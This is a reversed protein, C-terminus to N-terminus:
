LKYSESSPCVRGKDSYSKRFNNKGSGNCNHKCQRTRCYIISSDYNWKVFQYDADETFALTIKQGISYDKTGALYVSGEAALSSLTVTAKEDTAETIQYNWTKSTNMPIGLKDTIGKELTVKVTKYIEGSNFTIPNTKDVGITLLKGNVVPCTFHEAISYDASNTISINKLCTQNEYVYAWILGDENKKVEAGSPIENAKFIFSDESLEKTFSVTISRDRSVGLPEYRPSPEGSVKIRIECKPLIRIATSDNSVTVKTKLAKSNEFSVGSTVIKGPNNKEVAIWEIFSYDPNESFSIEFAYGQKATYNGGPLTSGTGENASVLVTLEKANNYAIADEIEQKVDGGNLFNECSTLGAIALLGGGLLFITSFLTRFSRNKM